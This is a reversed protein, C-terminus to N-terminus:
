GAVPERTPQAALRATDVRRRAAAARRAAADRFVGVVVWLWLCFAVSVCLVPMLWALLDDSL